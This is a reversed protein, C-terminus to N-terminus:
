LYKKWNITNIDQLYLQKKTGKGGSIILVLM